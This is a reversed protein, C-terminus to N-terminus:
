EGKGSPMDKVSGIPLPLVRFAELLLSGPHFAELASPPLPLESPWPSAPSEPSWPPDPSEPPWPLDAESAAVGAGAEVVPANSM